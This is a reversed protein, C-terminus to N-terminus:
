LSEIKWVKSFTNFQMDVFTGFNGNKDLVSFKYDNEDINESPEPESKEIDRAMDDLLGENKLENLNNVWKDKSLHDDYMFYKVALDVDEKKLAAIFLDLTEQPTKGGYTDATMAEVYQDEFKAFDDMYDYKFYEDWILYGFSGAAVVIVIISWYKTSMKAIFDLM